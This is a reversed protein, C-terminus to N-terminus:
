VPDSFASFLRSYNGTKFANLSSIRKGHRSKPGTTKTWPQNKQITIQLSQLGQKTLRYRRKPM